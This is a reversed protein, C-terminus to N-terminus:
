SDHRPAFLWCPVKTPDVADLCIRTNRGYLGSIIPNKLIAWFKIQNPVAKAGQVHDSPRASKACRDLAFNLRKSFYKKAKSTWASKLEVRRCLLSGHGSYVISVLVFSM